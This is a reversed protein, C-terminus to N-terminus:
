GQFSERKSRLIKLPPTEETFMKKLSPGYLDADLVGVKAGSILCLFLWTSFLLQIKGVGGKGSAIAVVHRVSALNHQVM